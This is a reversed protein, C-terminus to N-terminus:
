QVIGPETKTDLNPTLETSQGSSEDKKEEKPTFQEFAKSYIRSLVRKLNDPLNSLDDKYLALWNELDEKTHGIKKVIKDLSEKAGNYVLMPDNQQQITEADEEFDAPVMLNVDLEQPLYMGMLSDPFVVRAAKAIARWKYMTAAQKLYQSGTKNFLGLNKAEQETFLATYEPYNRRKMTVRCFDSHEDFKIYEVEKSRYILSLILNGQIGVKRSVPYLGDLAAMPPLNLERGKMIVAIVQEPTKYVEPLFGSKLLHIAVKSMSEWTKAFANVSAISEDQEPRKIVEDPM